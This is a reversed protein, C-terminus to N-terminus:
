PSAPPSAPSTAAVPQAQAAITKPSKRLFPEAALFLLPDVASNNLSVTWHLHPGTARGTMGVEGLKDGRMVLQGPTVDIRKLHCYMSVLGQGHDLLVTNGNFFFDGTTIVIGGAPASVRTGEAVAIDLGSHPQRPQQNFFRKLGFAGTLHGRVPPDFRLDPVLSDNWRAFANMLTERERAIRALTETDPEVHRKDRVSVHQIPYEKGDIHFLQEASADATKLVVRHMGPEADLPIGILAQWGTESRMVLVRRDGFFVAPPADTARALPVVAIGGPVPSHRPLFEVGPAVGTFALGAFLLLCSSKTKM